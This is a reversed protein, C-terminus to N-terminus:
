RENDFVFGVMRRDPHCRSAARPFDKLIAAREILVFRGREVERTETKGKRSYSAGFRVFKGAGSRMFAYTCSVEESLPLWSTDREVLVLMEPRQWSGHLAHHPPYSPKTEPIPDDADYLFGKGMGQIGPIRPLPKPPAGAAAYARLLLADARSFFDQMRESIAHESPHQPLAAAWDRSAKILAAIEETTMADKRERIRPIRLGHM